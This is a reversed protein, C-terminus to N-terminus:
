NLFGDVVGEYGCEFRMDLFDGYDAVGEGFRCELARLHGFCLIVAHHAVYFGALFFAGREDRAAFSERGDARALAEEDFGGDERMDLGAHLDVALLDEPGEHDDCGELRFILRELESVVCRVTKARRDERLVDRSAVAHGLLDLRAHYPDIAAVVGIIAYRKAADLLTPNASLQALRAQRRIRIRLGHM